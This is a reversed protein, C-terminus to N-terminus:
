EREEGGFTPPAVRLGQRLAAENFLRLEDRSLLIHDNAITLSGIGYSVYMQGCEFCIVMDSWAIGNRLQLGHRPDFCAPWDSTGTFVASKMRSLLRRGIQPSVRASGLITWDRMSAGGAVSESAPDLTVLVFQTRSSSGLMAVAGPFSRRPSQAPLSLWIVTGVAAGILVGILIRKRWRHLM